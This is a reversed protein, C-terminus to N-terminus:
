LSLVIKGSEGSLMLEFGKEFDNFDLRHTIVKSLDLGSQLMTTMKHWTEFMERGYIGKLHLCGFVIKNWDVMTGPNQIGLLAIKGGNIMSDIMKNLARGNGSM